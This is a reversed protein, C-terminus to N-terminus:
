ESAFAPWAIVVHADKFGDNPIEDNIGTVLNKYKLGDLSNVGFVVHKFPGNNLENTRDHAQDFSAFVEIIIEPFIDSM